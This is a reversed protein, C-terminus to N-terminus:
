PRRLRFFRPTGDVPVRVKCHDGAPEVARLATSWRANAGIATTEELVFDKAAVPWTLVLSGDDLGVSLAPAVAIFPALPATLTVTFSCTNTNGSADTATCVVTNTGLAFESGSAPVCTVVPNTDCLDSATSEFIVPAPIASVMEIDPSCVITPPTTDAVTVTFSCDGLNGADDTASCTVMTTGPAFVSGSPPICELELNVDCIDTATHEFSVVTGASNTCEVTMDGPCTVSPEVTDHVLVEFSCDAKNGSADTATCIVV